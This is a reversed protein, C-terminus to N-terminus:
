SKTVPDRFLDSAIKDSLLKGSRTLKLINNEITILKKQQLATLYSGLEQVLDRNHERKMKELDCGWSTRLTTFIYENIKNEATLIEREAPVKGESIFKSYRANNSINWQRSVRDYSHASPGAGLYLEQKWYASNHRSYYGPLCFNSVEYQEYGAEGLLNMLEEFQVASSEEDPEQLKGLRQWNGFVTKEEVTLSYASIHEPAVRVAQLINERWSERSQGPLAYMLDISINTFGARRSDDVCKLAAASDHARNLFRLVSDDFSQIGISLRNIGQERLVSLMDPTLDDPNAELTIEPDADVIFHRHIVNLLDSLEEKNLLSPTGGGFYITKVAEGKVYEERLRLEEAIAKVLQSKSDQNTSFYFDCYHCAQKCFPIHIYLGAMLNCSLMLTLTNRRIAPNHFSM